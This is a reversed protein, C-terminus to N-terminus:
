ELAKQIPRFWTKLSEIGKKKAFLLLLLGFSLQLTSPEPVASFNLYFDGNSYSVSWDGYYFNTHYAFDDTRVTFYNDIDSSSRAGWNIGAGGDPGDLFKFSSGHQALLNNTNDPAGATGDGSQLPLINLTFSTGAPGFSLNTFSLLDWDTGPTSGDFDKIEWDYVGGDNLSLTTATFAGVSASADDSTDASTGNDNLSIAQNLSSPSTLSSANGLGPSIFDVESAGNGINVSSISGDGGIVSKASGSGSVTGSLSVGSGIELSGEEIVLNGSYTNSANTLAVVGKGSKSIEASGSLIGSLTARGGNAAHLVASRGLDIAGSYISKGGVNEGIITEAHGTLSIDDFRHKETDASNTGTVRLVFGSGDALSSNIPYSTFNDSQTTLQTFSSGGDLSYDVQISDSAEQDGVETLNLALHLNTFTSIDVTPSTWVGTGGSLDRFEFLENGSISVVKLYDNADSLTASTSATWNVETTDTGTGSIGKGDQGSFNEEYATTQSSSLLNLGHTFTVGDALYFTGHNIDLDGVFNNLNSNDVTLDAGDLTDAQLQLTDFRLYEGAADTQGEIKFGFSSGDTISQDISDSTADDSFNGSQSVASSYSAGGDLSYKVNIKDDTELDGSESLDVLLSFDSFGSMPTFPSEFSVMGNTDQYEFLEAVVKAYDDSATLNAASADLTWSVGSLDTTPTPGYIGKNNQGSFTELYLRYQAQSPIIMLTFFLILFVPLGGPFIRVM